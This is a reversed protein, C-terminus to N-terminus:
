QITVIRPAAPPVLFIRAAEESPPSAPGTCDASGFAYLRVEANQTMDQLTVRFTLPVDREAGVAQCDLVGTDTQGSDVRLAGVSGAPTEDPALDRGADAPVGHFEYAGEVLPPFVDQAVAASALLLAALITIITKM